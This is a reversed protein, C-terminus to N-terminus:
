RIKKYDQGTQLIQKAVQAHMVKGFAKVTIVYALARVVNQVDQLGHIAM